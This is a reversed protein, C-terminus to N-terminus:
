PPKQESTQKTDMRIEKKQTKMLDIAQFASLKKEWIEKCSINYIDSLNWWGPSIM